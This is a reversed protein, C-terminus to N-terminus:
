HNSRFKLFLLKKSRKKLFSASEEKSRWLIPSCRAYGALAARLMCPVNNRINEPSNSSQPQSHKRQHTVSRKGVRRSKLFLLKKNRKKLFSASEEKSRWLIPSCRAYGALAVRRM